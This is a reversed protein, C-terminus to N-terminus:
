LPQELIITSGDWYYKSRVARVRYCNENFHNYVYGDKFAVSLHFGDSGEDNSWYYGDSKFNGQGKTHLQNYMAKLEDYNPLRWGYGLKRCAAGAAYWDMLSPFDKYAIEISDREPDGTRGYRIKFTGEEEVSRSTLPGEETSSGEDCGAFLLSIFLVAYKM